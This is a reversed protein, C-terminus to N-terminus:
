STITVAICNFCVQAVKHLQLHPLLSFVYLWVKGPLTGKLASMTMLTATTAKSSKSHITLDISKNNNNSTVETRSTNIENGISKSRYQLKSLLNPRQMM